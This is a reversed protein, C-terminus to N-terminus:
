QAASQSGLPSGRISLGAPLPRAAVSFGREVLDHRIRRYIGFSDPYVWLTITARNRNIRNIAQSFQSIPTCAAEYSEGRHESEPILEWGQLEYRRIPARREILGDLDAAVAPALEYALSFDGVPGVKSSLIGLRDSMRVRMQADAKTLQMLKDLNIFTIRDHRLEFHYEDEAVPRAVPSKSLISVSKPRPASRLTAVEKALKDREGRVFGGRSVAQDIRTSPDRIRFALKRACAADLAARTAAEAMRRAAEAARADSRARDRSVADLAKEAAAIKARDPGPPAAPPEKPAAPTAADPAPGPPAPAAEAVATGPVAEGPATPPSTTAQPTAPRPATPSPDRGGARPAWQVYVTVAFIAAAVSALEISARRGMGSGSPRRVVGDPAPSRESGSVPGGEARSGGGEVQDGAATM